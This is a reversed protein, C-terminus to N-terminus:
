FFDRLEPPPGGLITDLGDVPADLLGARLLRGTPVGAFALALGRPSLEPLGESAVATAGGRGDSAELLWGHGEIAFRATGRGRYGREAAAASLDLVGLMWPKVDSPPPLRAGVQLALDGTPGRWMATGAVTDWSGLSALLARHAAGTAAMLEWVRLQSSSSDYGRARDLVLHGIVRGAEDRAVQLLDRRTLPDDKPPHGPGTRSLLGDVQPALVAYSAAVEQVTGQGVTVGPVRGRPLASLPVPTSDFSGVVEFGLGRYLAPATPYLVGVAAGSHELVARVLRGALGRGRADPHVAVGAIGAVSVERGGWWQRYPQSFAAGVLRPGDLAGWGLGTGSWRAPAEGRREAGFVFRALDDNQEADDPRLERLEM